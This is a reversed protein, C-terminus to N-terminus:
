YVEPIRVRMTPRSRGRAVHRLGPVCVAVLLATLGRVLGRGIFGSGGTVLIRKGRVPDCGSM